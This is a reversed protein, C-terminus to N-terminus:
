ATHTGTRRASSSPKATVFSPAASVTSFTFSGSAFAGFHARELVRLSLVGARAKANRKAANNATISSIIMFAIWTVPWTIFGVFAFCLVFNIATLAWYGFM